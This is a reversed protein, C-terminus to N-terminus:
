LIDLEISFSSLESKITQKDLYFRISKGDGSLLSENGFFGSVYKALLHNTFYNYLGIESSTFVIGFMESNYDRGPLHESYMWSRYAPSISDKKSKLLIVGSAISEEARIEFLYQNKIDWIRVVGGSFRTEIDPPSTVAEPAPKIGSSEFKRRHIDFIGLIEPWKASFFSSILEKVDDLTIGYLKSENGSVELYLKKLSDIGIRSILLDLFLGCMPYSIDPSDCKKHFGDHTLLGELDMFDNEIIVYGLQLIVERSKGWRGGLAVALGEQFFSLTYLPLEGLAYNILFHSIEHEHPLHRSIIADFQLNCMGHADYGTLLKIDTSDCLYYDLKQNALLKMKERSIQLIDAAREIYEDLAELAYGNILSSDRYIINCYKTSTRNWGCTFIRLPSSIRWRGDSEELYYAFELSDRAMSLRVDIELYDGADRYDPFDISIAGARVFELYAIIPSGCDYKALINEYRIDLRKSKEILKPIWFSEANQWEAAELARFYEELIIEPGSVTQAISLSYSFFFAVALSHFTCKM